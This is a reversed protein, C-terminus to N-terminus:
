CGCGHFRFTQVEAIVLSRGSVALEVSTEDDLACTLGAGACTGARGVQQLVSEADVDARAIRETTRTLADGHEIMVGDDDLDTDDPEVPADPDHFDDLLDDVTLLGRPGIWAAFRELRDDLSSAALLCLARVHAQADHTAPRRPLYSTDGRAALAEAAAVALGCDAASTVEVLAADVDRGADTVFRQLLDSRTSAELAEDTLAVLLTARHRRADAALRPVAADLHLETVARVLVDEDELTAAEREALEPAAVELLRLRLADDEVIAFAAAQLETEPAPMAVLARLVDGLRAVDRPALQTLAWLALRRRLCPDEYTAAPDLEDLEVWSDGCQEHEVVDACAFGGDLLLTRAMVAATAPEDELAVLQAEYTGATLRLAQWRERADAASGPVAVVEAANGVVVPAAVEATVATRCSGTALVAALLLLHKAM